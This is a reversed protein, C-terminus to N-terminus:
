LKIKVRTIPEWRSGHGERWELQVREIKGNDHVYEAVRVHEAFMTALDHKWANAASSVTSYSGSTITAASMNLATTPAAMINWQKGDWIATEYRDNAIDYRVATDGTIPPRNSTM